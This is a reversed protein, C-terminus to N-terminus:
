TRALRTRGSFRLQKVTLMAMALVLVAASGTFPAIFSPGPAYTSVAREGFAILLVGLELPFEMRGRRAHPFGALAYVLLCVSVVRLGEALREGLRREAEPSFGARMGEQLLEISTKDSIGGDEAIPQTLQDLAIEYVGFSIESFRGSDSGYQLSGNRLQLVYGQEDEAVSATEAVYTRRMDPDRRDDAFFKDIEGDAGRGGILLVVGPAIQTFRNPSLTRGVLDAAISAQWEGLRKHAMPEVFNSILLVFAAGLGAFIMAANYIASLRHGSHIAHLEQSAQLGGLTRVMGIGWCAYFFIIIIPPTTLVSQGALTLMDQGKASVLDFLRLTQTLWVLSLAVLFFALASISFQKVLYATLRKM